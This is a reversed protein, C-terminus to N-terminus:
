RIVRKTAKVWKALPEHTLLAIIEEKEYGVEEMKQISIIGGAVIEKYEEILVRDRVIESLARDEDNSKMWLYDLKKPEVLFDYLGGEEETTTLEKYVRELRGDKYYALIEDKAYDEANHRFARFFDELVKGKEENTEASLFSQRVSFVTSPYNPDFFIEKDFLSKVAHQEEHLFRQLSGQEVNESSSLKSTNEATIAWGINPYSESYVNIAGSEGAEKREEETFDRKKGGGKRKDHFCVALYDEFNHCKIYLSVPGTVIEIEGKPVTGFLHRFLEENEPYEKRMKEVAKHRTQYEELTEKTIKKQNENMGFEAGLDVAMDYFDEIKGNPKNRIEDILIDQVRAMGVKQFALKEKFEALKQRREEKPVKLIGRIGREPDFIEGSKIPPQEVIFKEENM